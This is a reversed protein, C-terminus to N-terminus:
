NTKDDQNTEATQQKGPTESRENRKRNINDRDAHAM